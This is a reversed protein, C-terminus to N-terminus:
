TPRNPCSMPIHSNSTSRKVAPGSPGFGRRNAAPM